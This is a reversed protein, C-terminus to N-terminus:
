KPKTRTELQFLFDDRQSMEMLEDVPISRRFFDFANFYSTYASRSNDNIASIAEEFTNIKKNSIIQGAVYLAFGEFFWKPGMKNEDGAIRLHLIHAMEHALLRVWPNDVSNYEPRIKLFRSPTISFLIDQEIAASLGAIPLEENPEGTYSKIAKWMDKESHFIETKKFLPKKLHKTWKMESVFDFIIQSASVISVAFESKRFTLDAPLTLNNEIEAPNLFDSYESKKLM